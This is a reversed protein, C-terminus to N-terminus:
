YVLLNVLQRAYKRSATNHAATVLMIVRIRLSEAIVYARGVCKRTATTSFLARRERLTLNAIRNWGDARSVRALVGPCELYWENLM